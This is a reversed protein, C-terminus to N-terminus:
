HFKDHQTLHQQTSMGKKGIPQSEIYLIHTHFQVTMILCTIIRLYYIAKINEITFVEEWM